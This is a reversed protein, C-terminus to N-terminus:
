SDQTTALGLDRRIQGAVARMSPPGMFRALQRAGQLSAVIQQAKAAPDGDYRFKGQERGAACVRTMWALLEDLLQQGAERISEPLTHFDTALVGVPCLTSDECCEATSFAIFGELQQVPDGHGAMFAATRGRLLQRYHDIVAVALDAKTAFHYHVAANRIGLPRSIDQYSFGNFGRSRLLHDASALIKARTDTPATM